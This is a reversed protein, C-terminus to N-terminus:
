NKDKLDLIDEKLLPINRILIGWIIQHDVSDYAHAMLNRLGIIRKSDRIVLTSDEKKIKNLAEGIIESNREAARIAMFDKQFVLFNHDVRSM